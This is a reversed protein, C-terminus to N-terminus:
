LFVKRPIALANRQKGSKQKEAFLLLMKKKAISKKRASM